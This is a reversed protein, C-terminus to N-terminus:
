SLNEISSYIKTELDNIFANKDKMVDKSLQAQLVPQSIVSTVTQKPAPKKSPTVTSSESHGAGGGVNGGDAAGNTSGAKGGTQSDPAGGTQAPLTEKIDFVAGEVKSHKIDKDGMIKGFVARMANNVASVIGVGIGLPIKSIIVSIKSTQKGVQLMGGFSSAVINAEKKIATFLKEANSKQAAEIANDGSFLSNFSQNLADYSASKIVKEVHERVDKDINGAVKDIKKRHHGSRLVINVGDSARRNREDEPIKKRSGAINLSIDTGSM